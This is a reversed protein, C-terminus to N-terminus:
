LLLLHTPWLVVHASAASSLRGRRQPARIRMMYATALWMVSSPDHYLYLDGRTYLWACARGCVCVVFTQTYRGTGLVTEDPINLAQPTSMFVSQCNPADRPSVLNCHASLIVFCNLSITFSMLRYSLPVCTNTDTQGDTQRGAQRGAQRGTQRHCGYSM